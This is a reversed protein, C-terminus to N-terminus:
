PCVPAVECLLFDQTPDVGCWFPGPEPPLPSGAIFQFSLLYVADSLGSVMGNDDADAADFCPPASSGSVFEYSLLFTGDMLGCLTGDGNADGRLFVPPPEPPFPSAYVFRGHNLAALKQCFEVEQFSHGLCITHIPVNLYNAVTVNEVVRQAANTGNCIPLGDTVLFILRNPGPGPITVPDLARLSEILAEEMCSKGGGNITQVWGIATALNGPVANQLGLSWRQTTSHFSLLTFWQTPSLQQLARITEAKLTELKGDSLMSASRDLCWVLGDGEFDEGFFTFSHSAQATATPIELPNKQGRPFLTLALAGFIAVTSLQTKTM